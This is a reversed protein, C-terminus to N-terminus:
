KPQMQLIQSFLKYYKKWIIRQSFHNKAYNQIIEKKQNQNLLHLIWSEIQKKNNSDKVVCWVSSNIFDESGGNITTLVSKGCGMAEILVVGFSEHHSPLAFVNCANMWLPIQGHPQSWALIVSEQLNHNKIINEIKKTDPGTWVLYLMTDPDDKQVEAFVKILTDQNKHRLKHSAVNLLVKKDIPIWLKQRCEDQDMPYFKKDDYGNPIYISKPNYKKLAPIDNENVRILASANKRASYIGQNWSELEEQFRKSNEHITVIYPKQYTQSIQQTVYGGPMTFHAHVLDFDIKNQTIFNKVKRVMSRKQFLRWIIPIYFYVVFHVSINDYCYSDFLDKKSMMKKWLSIPIIINIKNFHQSYSDTTEKVFTHIPDGSKSPYGNAIVLINKM